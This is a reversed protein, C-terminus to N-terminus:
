QITPTGSGNFLRLITHNLDEGPISLLYLRAITEPDTITRTKLDFNPLRGNRKGWEMMVDMTQQSLVLHKPKNNSSSSPPTKRTM